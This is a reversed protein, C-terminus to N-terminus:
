VNIMIRNPTPTSLTQLTLILLFLLVPSLLNLSFDKNTVVVREGLGGLKDAEKIDMHLHLILTIKKISVHVDIYFTVDMHLPTPTSARVGLAQKKNLCEKFLIEGKTTLHGTM